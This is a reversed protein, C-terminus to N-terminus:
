VSTRTSRPRISGPMGPWNKMSSAGPRSKGRGKESHVTYFLGNRAFDPHFVFGILGSELRNYIANPFAEAVNAYVPCLQADLMVLGTCLADLLDAPDFHALASPTPQELAM